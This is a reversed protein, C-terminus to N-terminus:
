DFIEQKGIYIDFNGIDNMLTIANTAESISGYRPPEPVEELGKTVAVQVVFQGTFVNLLESIADYADEITEVYSDYRKAINLFLEEEALLAVIVPVEGDIKVSAGFQLKNKQANPPLIISSSCLTESLFSHFSRIVEVAFPFDVDHYKKLEEYYTALVSEIPPIELNHYEEFVQNLKSLDMIDNDILSQAFVLSQGDKLESIRSIQRPTILTRVFDDDVDNLETVEILQLFLAAVALSPKSDNALKIVEKIQAESLISRNFVFQGFDHSKM